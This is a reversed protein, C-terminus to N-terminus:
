SIQLGRIMLATQLSPPFPLSPAAFLCVPHGLAPASPCCSSSPAHCFCTVGQKSYSVCGAGASTVKISRGQAGVITRTPFSSPFTHWVPWWHGSMVSRSPLSPERGEELGKGEDGGKAPLSYPLVATYGIAMASAWPCLSDQIARGGTRGGVKRRTGRRLWGCVRQSTM